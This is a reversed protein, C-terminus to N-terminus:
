KGRVLPALEALPVGRDNASSIAELRFAPASYWRAVADPM